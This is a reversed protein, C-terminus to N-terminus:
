KRGGILIPIHKQIIKIPIITIGINIISLVIIVVTNLEINIINIAKYLYGNLLNHGALIVITGNSIVTVIKVENKYFLSLIITSIIGVIGLMYFLLSDRGYIFNNIDAKGNYKVAIIIIVYGIAAAICNIIKRKGDKAELIKIMDTKHIINGIGFFPFALVACDISFLVSKHLFKIFFMIGIIFGIGVIYYNVRNKTIREIIRHIIKAFFLGALFWLPVNLMISYRTFRGIGFFMGMIPKGLTELLPQNEYMEPHRLFAIVFWYIYFLGYLLIYPIILTRIGNAITEKINRGDNELYGSIFFFLPMHFAFIFKEMYAPIGMHGLIVLWIGIMKAFDIWLIRKGVTEGFQRM